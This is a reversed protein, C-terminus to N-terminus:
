EGAAEARSAGRVAAIEAFSRGDGELMAEKGTLIQWRLVSVDCYAADLDMGVARREVQQAAIIATGSGLFPDVILQGPETANVISRAILAVPKMTPHLDNRLPKDHEWVTRENSPGHWRPAEGIKHGYLCPEYWHKYQAFLAGAGNNKVWVLLNREQWGSQSMCALVNRLHASAFWLYLPAKPDSHQHALTLSQILLHRYAEPTLEDWYADSPQDVGRRAKGIREIQAARGGVYNVAYPPDTIVAQAVERAQEGDTHLAQGGDTQLAMLREWHAADTADGCMIRHYPMPAAQFRKGCHACTCEIAESM